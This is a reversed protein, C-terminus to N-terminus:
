DIRRLEISGEWGPWHALHLEILRQAEHRARDETDVDFMSWGVIVEKTEQFPGDTITLSGSRVRFEVADAMPYLDGGDVLTGEARAAADYATTADIMTQPPHAKAEDMKLFCLYRM